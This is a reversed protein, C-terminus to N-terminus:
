FLGIGIFAENCWAIPDPGVGMRWYRGLSFRLQQAERFHGHMDSDGLSHCSNLQEARTRSVLHLGLPQTSDIIYNM